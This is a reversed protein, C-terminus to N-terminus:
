KRTTQCPKPALMPRVVSDAGQLLTIEVLRKKLISERPLILNVWPQLQIGQLTQNEKVILQIQVIALCPMAKDPHRELAMAQKSFHQKLARPFLACEELPLTKAVNPNPPLVCLLPSHSSKKPRILRNDQPNYRPERLVKNASATLESLLAFRVNPPNLIQRGASQTLTKICNAQQRAVALNGRAPKKRVFSVIRQM